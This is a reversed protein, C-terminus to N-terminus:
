SYRNFYLDVLQFTFITSWIQSQLVHLWSFVMPGLSASHLTLLVGHYVFQLASFLFSMLWELPDVWIGALHCQWYGNCPLSTMCSASTALLPWCGNPHTFELFRHWTLLFELSSYSCSMYRQCDATQWLCKFNCSQSSTLDRPFHCYFCFVTRFCDMMLLRSLASPSRLFFILCLLVSLPTYPGADETLLLPCTHFISTTLYRSWCNSFLIITFQHFGQKLFSFNCM